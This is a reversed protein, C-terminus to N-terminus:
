GEYPTKASGFIRLFWYVWNRRFFGMNDEKLIRRLEQDAIKRMKGALKPGLHDKYQVIIQYLADHVVSGRAFNITDLAPGSAGDWCYGPRIILQCKVRKDYISYVADVHCVPQGPQTRSDLYLSAHVWQDRRTQFWHHVSKELRYKYRDHDIVEFSISM